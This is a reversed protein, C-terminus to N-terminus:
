EEKKSGEPQSYTMERVSEYFPMRNQFRLEEEVLVADKQKDTKDEGTDRETYQEPM